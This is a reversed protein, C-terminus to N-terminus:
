FKELDRLELKQFFVCWHRQVPHVSIEVPGDAPFSKEVRHRVETLVDLKALFEEGDEEM